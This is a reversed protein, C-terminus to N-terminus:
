TELLSQNGEQRNIKEKLKKWMVMEFFGTINLGESGVQLEVERIGEKVILPELHKYRETLFYVKQNRSGRWVLPVKEEEMYQGDILIDISELLDKAYPIGGKQIDEFLYGTYCVTSLGKSKMQEVLPLLAEAQLFPEGGSFTVGEIGAASNIQTMMEEVSMSIGGREDWFESNFCGKCRSRCGQFWIVFRKGPGNVATSVMFKGVRLRREAIKKVCM